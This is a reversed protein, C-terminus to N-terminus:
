AEKTVRALVAVDVGAAGAAMAAGTTARLTAGTTMVDDIIVIHHGTLDRSCQIAGDLITDRESPSRRDLTPTRRPRKFLDPILTAGTDRAIQQALLASQNYRRRLLRTWHLPVPALITDPRLLTAVDQAM